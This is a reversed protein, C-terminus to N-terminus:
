IRPMTKKLIFIFTPLFPELFKLLPYPLIDILGKYKLIKTFNFKKPQKLIKLTYDNIEFNSCLKLLGWYSRYKGIYIDKYGLSKLLQKTLNQPLWRLFPLNYMPEVLRLLNDGTFLCFGNTKLVRYIEKMLKTPNEVYSYVQNCIVIDFSNNKLPLSTGSALKFSINKRSKYSFIAESIANRDVDVGIFGGGNKSLFYTVAGNSCGVDLLTLGNFSKRESFELLISALQNAVRKRDKKELVEKHALSFSTNGLGQTQSM